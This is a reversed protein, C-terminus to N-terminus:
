EQMPQETTERLDVVDQDPVDPRTMVKSQDAVTDADPNVPATTTPPQVAVVVDLQM